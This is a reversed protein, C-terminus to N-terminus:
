RKMTVSYDTRCLDKSIDERRGTILNKSNVELMLTNRQTSKENLLKMEQDTLKKDAIAEIKKGTFKGWYEKTTNGKDMVTINLEGTEFNVFWRENIETSKSKGDCNTSTITMMVEWEGSISEKRFPKTQESENDNQSKKTNNKNGMERDEPNPITDSSWQQSDGMDDESQNCAVLSVLMILLLLKKM